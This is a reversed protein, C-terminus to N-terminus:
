LLFTEQFNQTPEKTSTNRKNKKSSPFIVVFAAFFQKKGCQRKMEPGYLQVRKIFTRSAGPILNQWSKLGENPAVRGSVVTSPESIRRDGTSAQLIDWKEYPKMSLLHHLIEEMLLLM